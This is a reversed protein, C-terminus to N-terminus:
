KVELCFAEAAHYGSRTKADMVVAAAIECLEANKVPVQELSVGVKTLIFVILVYKM